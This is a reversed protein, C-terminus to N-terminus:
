ARPRRNPRGRAPLTEVVGKGKLQAPRPAVSHTAIALLAYTSATVVQITWRRGHSEMRSATNVTDGWLDYAFKRQGIVGAVVPGSAIGIRLALTGPWHEVYLAAADQMDLALEAISGAHDAELRPVGAVAM